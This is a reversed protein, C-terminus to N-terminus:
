HRDRSMMNALYQSFPKVYLVFLSEITFGLNIRLLGDILWSTEVNLDRANKDDVLMSDALLNNDELEVPFFSKRKVKFRIRVFLVLLVFLCSDIFKIPKYM